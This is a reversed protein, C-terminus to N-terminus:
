LNDNIYTIMSRLTDTNEKLLGLSTNCNRCLLGRVKGTTHCHDVQPNDLPTSCIKCSSKQEAIMIDFQTKTLGYKTRLLYFKNYDSNYNRRRRERQEELPMQHYEERQKKRYCEKCHAKYVDTTRKYGDKGVYGAKQAIHYESLPKEIGCSKCVKM